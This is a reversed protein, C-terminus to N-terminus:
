WVLQLINIIYQIDQSHTAFSELSLKNEIFLMTSTQWKTYNYVNLKIMWTTFLLNVLWPIMKPM